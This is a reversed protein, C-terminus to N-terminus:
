RRQESARRGAIRSRHFGCRCGGRRCSRARDRSGFAWRQSQGHGRYSGRRRPRRHLHPGIRRLHFRLRCRRITRDARRFSASGGCRRRDTGGRTDAARGARPSREGSRDRDHRGARHRRLDATARLGDRRCVFRVVAVVDAARFADPRFCGCGPVLAVTLLLRGGSSPAHAWRDRGHRAPPSRRGATRHSPGAM